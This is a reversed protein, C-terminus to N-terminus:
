PSNGNRGGMAGTRRTTRTTRGAAGSRAVHLLNIELPLFDSQIRTCFDELLSIVTGEVFRSGKITLYKM